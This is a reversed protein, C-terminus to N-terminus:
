NQLLMNTMLDDISFFGKMPGTEGCVLWNAASLAGSALGERNRNTHVIEISDAPSDFFLSHQGPISGLRLSPYHLEEPKPNRDLMEWVAKTKREMRELVGEVLTKATGSPSDLKKNHHAEFGGADYEPFSNILKAAYWAIRYFLNVGLSFNTAWVLASGAQEVYRRAEDLRDHWGTTGIVAPIRKEALSKINDLATAPQTFEIAVDAGCLEGAEALSRFFGASEPLNLAPMLPDVVATITHNQAIAMQSIMRGMKGFGILAIKM